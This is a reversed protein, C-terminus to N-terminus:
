EGVLLESFYPLLHERVREAVKGNHNGEYAILEHPIGAATLQQDFYICGRPIWALEDQIAYDVTIGKLKLLNDKYKVIEDSIGGFGSEWRKWIEEDRVLQGNSETYPYDFYFPPNEPNPAFAMGYAVTFFDYMSMVGKLQEDEPLELIGQQAKMFNKTVADAGYMQSTALGNEDFLGPSISYIAGFVDPHLMAINLSGYGGMSHGSIGRSEANPITRYNSDVYGVVEKVVFDEWNGTIPSNAYFSWGGPIIVLIMEKIAEAEILADADKPLSIKMTAEAYGPLYYVVPYRKTSTNYSPPLYINITQETKQGLINGAIAASDITIASFKQPPPTPTESACASLVFTFLLFFLGLKTKYM